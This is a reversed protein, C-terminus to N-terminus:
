GASRKLVENAAVLQGRLRAALSSRERPPTVELAKRTQRIKQHQKNPLRLTDGFVIAGTVPKPRNAAYFKSKAARTKLGHQRIIKRVQLLLRQSATAGSITVDDVLVTLKAENSVALSDIRDFMPRAALFAVYGSLPSGTPLKVQQYCCIDAIIRAVDSACQFDERFLRMVMGHTTSPYFKNIDTKILPSDGRHQLANEVNSRGRQSYVYDPVEIRVLLDAIRKHVCALWGVPAQIERGRENKWVRYNEAALLVDLKTLDIRLLQELKGLGRLKYFPSDSVRYRKRRNPSL